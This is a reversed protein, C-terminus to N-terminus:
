RRPARQAPPRVPREPAARALPVPVEPETRAAEPGAPAAGMAAPRGGARGAAPVPRGPGAAPVPRERGVAPVPRGWRGARGARRAGALGADQCCGRCGSRSRSPGPAGGPVAGSRDARGPKRAGRCGPRDQHGAALDRRNGATARPHPAALRGADRRDGAWGL